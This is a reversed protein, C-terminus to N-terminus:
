SSGAVLTIMTAIYKGQSPGPEGEALFTLIFILLLFM